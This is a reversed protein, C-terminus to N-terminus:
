LAGVSVPLAEFVPLVIAKEFCFNVLAAPLLRRHTPGANTDAVYPGTRSVLTVFEGLTNTFQSGLPAPWHGAGFREDPRGATLRRGIPTRSWHRRPQHPPCTSSNVPRCRGWWGDGDERQRTRGRRGM